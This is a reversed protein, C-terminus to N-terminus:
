YCVNVWHPGYPGWVRRLCGDYGYGGYGAGYYGGYYGPYGYGYGNGIASGLLLGTGFGAVGFGVGRGWGGRHWGGYGGRWGGYGGHFGGYGGRFGGFGGGHYFRPGFAAAPEITAATAGAVALAAVSARLWKGASASVNMTDSM